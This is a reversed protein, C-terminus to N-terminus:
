SCEVLHTGHEFDYISLRVDVDEFARDVQVTLSATLPQGTRVTLTSVGDATSVTLAVIELPTSDAGSDIARGSAAAAGAGGAALRQYATIVDHSSGSAVITGRDLLLVRDCLQEVAGLDHSVIILTIGRRKLDEIRRVCRAQFEVDGVALVEDVLLIDP